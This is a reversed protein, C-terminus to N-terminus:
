DKMPKLSLMAVASYQKTNFEIQLTGKKDEVPKIKVKSNRFPSALWALSQNIAPRVGNYGLKETEESAKYLSAYDMEGPTLKPTSEVDERLDYDAVPEVNAIDIVPSTYEPENSVQITTDDMEDAITPTAVYNYDTNPTPAPAEEALQEESKVEVELEIPQVEEVPTEKEVSKVMSSGLGEADDSPLFAKWLPYSGIVLAIGAAYKMWSLGTFAILKTEKKRLSEKNSYAVEPAVLRTHQLLEWDNELANDEEIAKLIEVEEEPSLDNEMLEFLKWDMNEREKM